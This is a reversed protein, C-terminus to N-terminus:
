VAYPISVHSSNLRTSKRDATRALPCEDSPPYPYATRTELPSPPRSRGRASAESCGAPDTRSSPTGEPRRSRDPPNRVDAAATPLDSSRRTPFRPLRHFFSLF